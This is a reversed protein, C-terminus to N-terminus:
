EDEDEEFFIPILMIPIKNLINPIHFSDLLFKAKPLDRMECCKLFKELPYFRQIKM